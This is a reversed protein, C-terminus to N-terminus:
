CADHLVEVAAGGGPGPRVAAVDIRLRAGRMGSSVRAGRSQEAGFRGALQRLRRRKAVTVADFPSGFRGSTRTKVECVVLAPDAPDFVVLDIEGIACRWNRAVVTCGRAVYWDVVAQEGAAGIRRRADVM